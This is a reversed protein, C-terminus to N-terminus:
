ENRMTIQSVLNISQNGTAWTMFADLLWFDFAYDITVTTPDGRQAGEVFSITARAPDLGANDLRDQIAIRAHTSDVGPDHVVLMRTGERAADAIAHHASWGRAFDILGFIILFLIPAILAFEVIAQGSRHTKPRLTRRITSLTM